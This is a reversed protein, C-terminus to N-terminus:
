RIDLEPYFAAWAFWYGMFSDTPDLGQGLKPGSIVEGFLDYQNGNSDTFAIPLQNQIATYTVISPEDTYFSVIFNQEESGVVVIRRAGAMESLVGIGSSFRNFRYIYTESNFIIGHVREKKPVRDDTHSVPFLLFENNTNYDGYPYRGYSRDYGTSDSVVKSEPYLEKWTEWTTELVNILEPKEGRLNGGVCELRIQSWYSDTGRDYPIINANYLFGSVGFTTLGSSLERNWAMGTGTLPCYIISYYDTGMEDNAIEHWDLISHPYARAEDGKKIGIVLDTDKLYTANQLVILQPNALAPIGDKGPGGDYVENTPILWDTTNGNYNGGKSTSDKRTGGSDRDGIGFPECSWVAACIIMSGIIVKIRNM